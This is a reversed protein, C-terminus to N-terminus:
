RRRAPPHEHEEWPDAVLHRRFRAPCSLATWVFEIPVFVPRGMFIPEVIVYDEGYVDFCCECSDESFSLTVLKGIRGDPLPVLAGQKM